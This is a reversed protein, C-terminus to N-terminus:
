GHKARRAGIFLMFAATVMCWLAFNPLNIRVPNTAAYITDTVIENQEEIKKDTYANVEAVTERKKAIMLQNVEERLRTFREQFGNITLEFSAMKDKMEQLMQRTQEDVQVTVIQRQIQQAEILLQKLNNIEAQMEEITADTVNTDQSYANVSFLLVFAM